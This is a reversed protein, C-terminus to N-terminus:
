NTKCFGSCIKKLDISKHRQAVDTVHIATEIRCFCTTSKVCNGNFELKLKRFILYLSGIYSIAVDDIFMINLCKSDERENSKM